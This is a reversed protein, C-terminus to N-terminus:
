ESSMKSGFSKLTSYKVLRIRSKDGNQRMKKTTEDLIDVFRNYFVGSFIFNRSQFFLSYSYRLSLHTVHTSIIRYAYERSVIRTSDGYRRHHIVYM